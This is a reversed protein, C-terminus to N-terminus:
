GSRVNGKAAAKLLEIARERMEAHDVIPLPYTEGLCVGASELEFPRAKWPAHIAPARLERLEPVWRRIFVGDPDFKESQTVPNFVRFYPQPDTGTSAAWQWGGNNNALDFDLLWRAFWAEGKRYDTLLDKTLFSATIMRLRNHMYGTQRLCRMAADVIPYGTQGECWAEWDAKKGHYKVERFQPQFAEKAAEPNHFLVDQYFERWILESLWKKGGHELAVRVCERISVTGFRLHVGLGSTAERAPENRDEAYRRMQTAFHRLRERGADEGAKLWIETEEFGVKDLPPLQTGTPLEELPWLAEKKARHVAADREPQFVGNWTRAYPTYVRFPTGSGTLVQGPELVVTDKVLVLEVERAVAEDRQRAYPEYDRATFVAEAGTQKALKPIEEAPDGDLVVLRSGIRRLKEDMEALSRHIFTMRRDDRDELAGLINRDFVFVVAVREAEATARALAAHDYLRLDRRVWCLARGYRKAM